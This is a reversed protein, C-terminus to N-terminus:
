EGIQFRSFRKLTVNEGVKSITENLLDQITKEPEKVYAQNLLVNETYYKEIRGASIKEIIHDPKGEAKAQEKFIEMEKEVLAQDVEERTVALPNSAAVHMAVNKVFEKFNDTNAVFDTECNVEVIVGLKSGPHIYAEILGEKAERGARKAAKAIGKKRLIDSAKESDGDAEKLANKCDMMGVGTKERLEKVMAATIEAM